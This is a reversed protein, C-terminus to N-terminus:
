ELRHLLQTAELEVAKLDTSASKAERLYRAAAQLNGRVIHFKGIELQMKQKLRQKQQRSNTLALAEEYLTKGREFHGKKLHLLGLTATATPSKHIWPSLKPALSEAEDIKGLQLFVFIVNNLLLGLKEKGVNKKLVEQLTWEACQTAKVANLNVLSYFYTASLLLNHYLNRNKGPMAFLRDFEKETQDMRGTESLTDCRLALISSSIRTKVLEPLKESPILESTKLAKDLEGLSRLYVFANYFPLYTSFGEQTSADIAKALYKLSRSRDGLRWYVLGMNNWVGPGESISAQSRLSELARQNSDTEFSCRALRDWAANSKQEYRTFDTVARCADDYRKESMLVDAFFIVATEDAPNIAVARKLVEIAKDTRDSRCYAAALLLYPASSSEDDETASRFFRIAQASSSQRLALIGALLLARWNTGDIDLAANVFESARHFEGKLLEVFALGLNAAADTRLDADRFVSEAESYRDLGILTRGLRERFYSTRDLTLGSRLHDVSGEADGSFESLTALHSLFTPSKSYHEKKRLLRDLERKLSSGWTNRFESYVEEASVKEFYLDRISNLEDAEPLQLAIAGCLEDALVVSLPQRRRALELKKDVSTQELM